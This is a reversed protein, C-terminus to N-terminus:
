DLNYKKLKRYLTAVGIELMDAAASRNGKSIKLAEEIANKELNSLSLNRDIKNNSSNTMTTPLDSPQITEHLGITIARRIFNELERVNGPWNYDAMIKETEISISKVPSVPTKFKTLFYHSLLPLDEERDRLPVAELTIVNLRYFLDERFTKRKVEEFLDKNTAAIIRVNVPHRKLQGVARVTKEQLFRLLKAQTSLPLEGIEDLFITGGDASRILGQHATEAGTFAGKEHGFLESEILNKSIGACDVPLFLKEPRNSQIHLALAIIEKGTGSEGQILITEESPAVRCIMEKLAIIPESNGIFQKCKFNLEM